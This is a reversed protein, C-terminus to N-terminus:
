CHSGNSRRRSGARINGDLISPPLASHLCPSIYICGEMVSRIAPILDTALRAKLVYGVAGVSMATELFEPDEHVTIFLVKTPCGSAKLCAATEIGNVVPMFIDLVLVDPSRQIVLELVQKGNEALGVIEFEDELMSTVTRLVEEQDDALLVRPVIYGHASSHDKAQVERADWEVANVYAM